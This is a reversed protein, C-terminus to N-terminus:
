WSHRALALGARQDGCEGDETLQRRRLKREAIGIPCASSARVPTRPPVRLQAERISTIPEGRTGHLLTWYRKGPESFAVNTHLNVSNGQWSATISAILRRSAGLDTKWPQDEEAALVQSRVVWVKPLHSTGYSHCKFRMRM